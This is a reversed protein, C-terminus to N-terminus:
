DRPILAFARVGWGEQQSIMDDTRCTGGIIQGATIMEATQLQIAADEYTGSISNQFEAQKIWDGGTEGTFEEVNSEYGAMYIFSVALRRSGYTTVDEAYIIDSEQTGFSGDENFNTLAVYRFAYMRSIVNTPNGNIPITLYGTETGTSFKYYIWQGIDTSSSQDAYLLTFGQSGLQSGDPSNTGDRIGIQLLILDDEELDTPYTPSRRNASTVATGGRGGDGASVFVVPSDVDFQNSTGSYETEITGTATITADEAAGTVTVDGTWVGHNFAGTVTPDITGGSYVLDCTSTYDFREDYQDQAEITISFPVGSVQPNAITSFAFHDLAPVSRASGAPYEHAETSTGLLTTVKVTVKEGPLAAGELYTLTATDGKNLSALNDSVTVGTITCNVIEGNVYLCTPQELQVVGEGVNQVFVVLDTDTADNAISQIMIAQGSRETSLGIYGMVWAYVVLSGAIAVAIMMLVALVPSIAKVNRRIHRAIHKM